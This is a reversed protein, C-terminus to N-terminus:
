DYKTWLGAMELSGGVSELKALDFWSEEYAEQIFVLEDRVTQLSRLDVRQLGRTQPLTISTIEVLGPMEIAVLDSAGTNTDMTISGNIRTVGKLAFTGSFSPSIAVSGTITTCGNYPILDSPSSLVANATTTCDRAYIGVPLVLAFLALFNRLSTM